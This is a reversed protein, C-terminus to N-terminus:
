CSVLTISSEATAPGLIANPWRDGAQVVDHTELEVHYYTVANEVGERASSEPAM